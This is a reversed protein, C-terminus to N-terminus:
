LAGSRIPRSWLGMMEDGTQVAARQYLNVIQDHTVREWPDAAEALGAHSLLGAFQAPSGSSRLANLWDEIFARSVTPLVDPM